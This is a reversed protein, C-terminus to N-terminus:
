TKTILFEEKHQDWKLGWGLWCYIAKFSCWSLDINLCTCLGVKINYFAKLHSACKLNYGRSKPRGSEGPPKPISSEEEECNSSLSTLNSDDSPTLSSEHSLGQSNHASPTTSCHCFSSASGFCVKPELTPTQPHSTSTKFQVEEHMTITPPASAFCIVAHVTLAPGPSPVPGPKFFAPLQRHALSPMTTILCSITPALLFSPINIHELCYLLGFLAIPWLLPCLVFISHVLIWLLPHPLAFALFSSVSLLSCDLTDCLTGKMHQIAKNPHHLQGGWWRTCGTCTICYHWLSQSSIWYDDGLSPWTITDMVQHCNSLTALLSCYTPDSSLLCSKLFINGIYLHVEGFTVGPFGAVLMYAYKFSM